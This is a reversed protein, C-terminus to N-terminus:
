FEILSKLMDTASKSKRPKSKTKERSKTKEARGTAKREEKIAKIRAKLAKEESGGKIGPQESRSQSVPSAGNDGSKTEMAAAVAGTSPESVALEGDPSVNIGWRHLMGFRDNRAGRIELKWTGKVSQGNFKALGPQRKVLGEPSFTGAFPPKAKSIPLKAQDDFVTKSMNDGSGGVATFLEITDGAPSTLFADLHSIHSHTIALEVNVDAIQFDEEVVVESVLTRRPPIIEADNNQFNGGVVAKAMIAERYTLFGDDNNDLQTFEQLPRKTTVFEALAVQGDDNKDLEYFWAPLGETLDGADDQLMTIYATLEERSVEGNNDTDMKSAPIGLAASEEFELRGNKNTDFRGLLSASLWTKNGGSAWWPTKRTREENKRNHYAMGRELDRRERIEDTLGDLLRRRAYRQTLEMHSLRGDGDLDDAFPDRHTWRNQLAEKRDVFGDQNDDCRRITRDAEEMDERIYPYRMRAVGFGPVLPDDDDLGFSRLKPQIVPRVDRGNSGNRASYYRQAASMVDTISVPQHLSFGGRGRSGRSIRTLYPRALTTVEHPDIHQNNNVDLKELSERLGAQGCAHNTFLCSPFVVCVIVPIFRRQM